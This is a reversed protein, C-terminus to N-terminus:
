ENEQMLKIEEPIEIEGWLLMSATSTALEVAVSELMEASTEKM